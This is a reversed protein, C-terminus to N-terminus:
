KTFTLIPCTDSIDYTGSEIYRSGEPALALIESRTPFWTTADSKRYPELTSMQEATWPLLSRDPFLQDFLEVILRVPVLPGHEVALYMPILRRYASFNVTPTKAEALLRELTINENPRTFMRCAFVGGPRLLTLAKGLMFNVDEPYSLMNISGDGIIGDYYNEALTVTLWNDLIARKNETNGPWVNEIMAPERDVATVHTYATAIQPTVGLLLINASTPVLSAFCDIIEQNPQLPPGNKGWNRSRDAWHTTTM